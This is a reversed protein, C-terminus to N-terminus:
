NDELRHLTEGGINKIEVVIKGSKQLAESQKITVFGDSSDKLIESGVM